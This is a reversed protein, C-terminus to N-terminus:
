GKRLVVGFGNNGTTRSYDSWAHRARATRVIIPACYATCRNHSRHRCPRHSRHRFAFADPYTARVRQLMAGNDDMRLAAKQLFTRPRPVHAMTFWEPHAGWLTDFMEGTGFKPM